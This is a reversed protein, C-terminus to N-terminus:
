KQLKNYSLNAIYTFQNNESLVLTLPPKQGDAPAKYPNHAEKVMKM